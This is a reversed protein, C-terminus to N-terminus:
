LMFINFIKLEMTLLTNQRLKRSLSSWMDPASPHSLPAGKDELVNLHNSYTFWLPVAGNMRLSKKISILASRGISKTMLIARRSYTTNEETMKTSYGKSRQLWGEPHSPLWDSCAVEQKEQRRNLALRMLRICIWSWIEKMASWNHTLHKRERQWTEGFTMRCAHVGATSRWM